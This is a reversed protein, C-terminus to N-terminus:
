FVLIKVAVSAVNVKLYINTATFATGSRYVVGAKDLSYVIFGTPVKGLTHAVTNEADPTASSTFQVFVIDVNESFTIGRNLIPELGVQIENLIELPNSNQPIPIRKFATM